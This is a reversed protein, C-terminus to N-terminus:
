AGSCLNVKYASGSRLPLVARVTHAMYQLNQSGDSSRHATQQNNIGLTNLVSNIQTKKTDIALGQALGRSVRTLSAPLDASSIREDHEITPARPCCECVSELQEDSLSSTLRLYLTALSM